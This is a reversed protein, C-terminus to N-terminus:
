KNKLDNSTRVKLSRKSNANAPDFNQKPLSENVKIGNLKSSGYREQSKKKFNKNYLESMEIEADLINLNDFNIASFMSPNSFHWYRNNPIANPTHETEIVIEPSSQSLSSANTHKQKSVSVNLNNLRSKYTQMPSKVRSEKFMPNNERNNDDNSMFDGMRDFAVNNQKHPPIRIKNTSNKNTFYKDLHNPIANEMNSNIHVRDYSNTELFEVRNKSKTSLSPTLNTSRISVKHDKMFNKMDNLENAISNNVNYMQKSNQTSANSISTNDKELNKTSSPYRNGIASRAEGKILIPKKASLNYTKNSFNDHLKQVHLSNTMIPLLSSKNKAVQNPSNLYNNVLLPIDDDHQVEDVTTKIVKNKLIYPDQTMIKKIELNRQHLKLSSNTVADDDIINHSQIGNKIDNSIIQKDNSGLQSKKDAFHDMLKNYMVNMKDREGLDINNSVQKDTHITKIKSNFLNQSNINANLNLVVNSNKQKDFANKKNFNKITSPNLTNGNEQFVLDNLRITSDSKSKSLSDRLSVNNDQTDIENMNSSLNSIKTFSEQKLQQLQSKQVTIVADNSFLRKYYNDTSQRNNVITGNSFQGQSQTNLQQKDYKEMNALRSNVLPFNQSISDRTEKTDKDILDLDEKLAKKFAKIMSIKDNPTNYKDNISSSMNQAIIRGPSTNSPRELELQNKIHDLDKMKGIKKKMTKM